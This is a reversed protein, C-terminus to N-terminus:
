VLAGDTVAVGFQRVELVLNGYCYPLLMLCASKACSSFFFILIHQVLQLSQLKLGALFQLFHVLYVIPSKSSIVSRLLNHFFFQPLYFFVSLVSKAYINVFASNFSYLESMWDNLDNSQKINRFFVMGDVQMLWVILVTYICKYHCHSLYWLTITTPYYGYIWLEWHHFSRLSRLASQEIPVSQEVM